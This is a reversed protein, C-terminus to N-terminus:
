NKVLAICLDEDTSHDRVILFQIVRFCTVLRRFRPIIALLSYLAHIM